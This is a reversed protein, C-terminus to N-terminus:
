EEEAGAVGDKEIQKIKELHSQVLPLYTQAYQKIDPDRFETADEFEDADRKHDIRMMDLFKEDFEEGSKEKLDELGNAKGPSLDIPLAINKSAALVRLEKLMRTQDRVMLEGYQRVSPNSSHTSALKGQEINMMRADAAETLFESVDEDISSNINKQHADKVSDRDSPGCALVGFLLVLITLISKMYSKRMVQFNKHWLFLLV